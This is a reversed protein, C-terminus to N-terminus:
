KTRHRQEDGTTAPVQGLKPELGTCESDKYRRPQHLSRKLAIGGTFNLGLIMNPLALTQGWGPPSNPSPMARLPEAPGFKEM